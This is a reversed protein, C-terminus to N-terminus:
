IAFVKESKESKQPRGEFCSESLSGWWLKESEGFQSRESQQRSYTGVWNKLFAFTFVGNIMVQKSITCVHHIYCWSVSAAASSCPAASARWRSCLRLTHQTISPERRVERILKFRTRCYQKKLFKEDSNSPTELIVVQLSFYHLSWTLCNISIM